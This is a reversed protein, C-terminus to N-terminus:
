SVTLPTCNLIPLRSTHKCLMTMLAPLGTILNFHRYDGARHRLFPLAAISINGITNEKRLVCAVNLFVSEIILRSIRRGLM